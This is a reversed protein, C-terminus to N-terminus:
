DHAVNKDDLAPFLDTVRKANGKGFLKGELLNEGLAERIPDVFRGQATADLNEWKTLEPLKNETRIITANWSEEKDESFLQCMLTETKTPMKSIPIANDDKLYEEGEEKNMKFMWGSVLIGVAIAKHEKILGPIVKQTLLEKDELCEPDIGIVKLEEEKNVLFLFPLWDDEPSTFQDQVSKVGGFVAERLEKLVDEM